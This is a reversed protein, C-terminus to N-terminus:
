KLEGKENFLNEYTLNDNRNGAGNNDIPSEEQRSKGVQLFLEMNASRLTEMDTVYKANQETLTAHEDFTKSVEDTLSTLLTRRVADDTCTGIETMKDIFEQKKM